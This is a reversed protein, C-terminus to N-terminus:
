RMRRVPQEMRADLAEYKKAIFLDSSEQKVALHAGPEPVGAPDSAGAEAALGLLATLLLTPLVRM